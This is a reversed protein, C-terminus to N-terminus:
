DVGYSFPHADTIPENHFMTFVYTFVILLLARSIFTVPKITPPWKKQNSVAAPHHSRNATLLSPSYIFPLFNSYCFFICQNFFLKQIKKSSLVAYFDVTRM